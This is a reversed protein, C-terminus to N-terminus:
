AAIREQADLSGPLDGLILHDLYLKQADDSLREAVQALIKFGCGAERTTQFARAIARHPDSVFEDGAHGCYAALRFMAGWERSLKEFDPKGHAPSFTRDILERTAFYLSIERDFANFGIEDSLEHRLFQAAAQYGEGSGVQLRGCLIAGMGRLMHNGPDPEISNDADSHRGELDNLLTRVFKATATSIGPSPVDSLVSELSLVDALSRVCEKCASQLAPHRVAVEADGKADGLLVAILSEWQTKRDLDVAQCTPQPDAITQVLVQRLAYHLVVERDARDLPPQAAGAGHFNKLAEDRGESCAMLFDKVRVEYSKPQARAESRSQSSSDQPNSGQTSPTTVFIQEM